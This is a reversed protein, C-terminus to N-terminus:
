KPCPMGGAVWQHMLTMFDSHAVPVPKRGVGPTWGWLVLPEAKMHEILADGTRGGNRKPDKLMACLEASSLGQWVMSVPALRWHPAGPTGSMPDNGFDKHCVGCHMAGAGTGDPGRVAFPVHPHPIDGQLPSTQQHCNLCRPHQLVSVIKGWAALGPMEGPAAAALLPGILAGQLIAFSALAEGLRNRGGM